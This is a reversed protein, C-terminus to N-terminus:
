RYDNQFNKEILRPFAYEHLNCPKIKLFLKKIDPTLSGTLTFSFFTAVITQHTLQHRINTIVKTLTYKKGSWSLFQKNKIIEVPGIPKNSEILPLEYLKQWIDSHTRQKIFIYDKYNFILYNFYRIRPKKGKKKVPLLHVINNKLANCSQNFVCATCDPNKPKCQLAGFEMIAQNFVAPRNKELLANALALFQSKAKGTNIPTDIGYYRALFRYVNGDLVAHPLNFAFSAIAASTYDGIGKLKKLKELDAPFIGHYTKQIERATYLMNRARSYYGLGQWLKLIKEEKASSFAHIDPFAELFRYFYPLGQSVQTQQLIIESLWIVYPDNSDRWPLDRKNTNYWSILANGSIM